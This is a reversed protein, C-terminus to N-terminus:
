TRLALLLPLPYNQLRNVVSDDLEPTSNMNSIANNDLSHVIGTKLLIVALLFLAFVPIIIKWYLQKHSAKPIQSQSINNGPSTPMQPIFSEESVPIHSNDCETSGLSPLTRKVRSVLKQVAEEEPTDVADLWHVNALFYAMGDKPASKTLKFPIVTLGNDLALHVENMVQGSANSDDTFVLLFAKSEKIADVISSAWNSGVDIDRSAYWCRIKESELANSIARVINEDKSSYSIFIDHAM